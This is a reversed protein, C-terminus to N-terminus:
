KEKANPPPLIPLRESSKQRKQVEIQEVLIAPSVASVPIWGSEAGCYGNFIEPKDNTAIIRSFATLPTGILDVGRVLEDKRGDAYVRYVLIPTVQFSQPAARSTSTFGGSIDDFLLGYPKRQRKIEAILQRRLEADSVGRASEIILNGQRGVARYGESKRGHGNSRPFDKVPARSMLFNRLVGREIIAVNQAKVGEDDFMYYGNLDQGFLNKLTPNDSVTLFSPLITQGVSATFTQGEDESKQRHGEIRHGFIEHFFVGSARGRLIAPVTSPEILPANRLKILDDAMKQMAREITADDALKDPTHADFSEFRFLDMGDMAKTQALVSLRVRTAGFELSTNESNVFSTVRDDCTLTVSADYIEPYAKFFGSLRRAREEWAARNVVPRTHPVINQLPTERSFDASTDDAEVRVNRNAEVRVLRETAQKYRKDTELWIAARLAESNDNLPLAVPRAYGSADDFANDDGRIQSTNDQNYNGVRVDIDLTRARNEDSTQLAGRSASVTTTRKDAVQYSIFYPPQKARQKFAEFNRALEQGLVDLVLSKTPSLKSSSSEASYSNQAGPLSNPSALLLAAIFSALLKKSM